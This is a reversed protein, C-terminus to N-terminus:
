RRGTARRGSELDSIMSAIDIVEAGEAAHIEREALRFQEPVADPETASREFTLPVSEDQEMGELYM